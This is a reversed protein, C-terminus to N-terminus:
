GPFTRSPELLHFIFRCNGVLWHRWAVPLRPLLVVCLPPFPLSEAATCMLEALLSPDGARQMYLSCFLFVLFRHMCARFPGGAVQGKELGGLLPASDQWSHFVMVEGRTCGVGEVGREKGRAGEM